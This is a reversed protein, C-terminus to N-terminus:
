VEVTIRVEWVYKRDGAQLTEGAFSAVTSVDDGSQIIGDTKYGYLTGIPKSVTITTWYEKSLIGDGSLSKEKADAM